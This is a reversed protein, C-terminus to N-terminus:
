SQNRGLKPNTWIYLPLIIYFKLILCSNIITAMTAGLGATKINQKVNIRFLAVLVKMVNFTPPGTSKGINEPIGPLM